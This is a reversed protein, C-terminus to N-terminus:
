KRNISRNPIIVEMKIREDTSKNTMFSYGIINLEKIDARSNLESKKSGNFGLIVL